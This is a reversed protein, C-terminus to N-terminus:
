RRNNEKGTEKIATTKATNDLSRFSVCERPDTITHESGISDVSSDSSRRRRKRLKQELKKIKKLLRDQRHKRKKGMNLAMEKLTTITTQYVWLM